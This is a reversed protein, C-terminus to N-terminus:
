NALWKNAYKISTMVADVKINEKKFYKKYYQIKNPKGWREPCVFCIKFNKLIKKQKKTFSIKKVSDIWLWNFIKKFRLISDIPEYYSTRLACSKDKKEICSFLYPIEVDLLFFNKIRKNKKVKKIVEDEIGSEKINLILIGHNYNKLYDDLLDGNKKPEHNLVLKGKYSKIDIEIGFTKPIKRLESIKNVRHIIIEM